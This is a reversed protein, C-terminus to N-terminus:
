AATKDLKPELRQLIWPLQCLALVERRDIPVDGEGLVDTAQCKLMSSVLGIYIHFSECQLFQWFYICVILFPFAYTCISTYVYIIYTYMMYRNLQNLHAGFNGNRIKVTGQM